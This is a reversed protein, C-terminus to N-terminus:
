YLHYSINEIGLWPGKPDNQIREDEWPIFHREIMDDWAEKGVPTNHTTLGGPYKETEKEEPLELYHVLLNDYLFLMGYKDYMGPNEEQFQYHYFIYSATKEPKLYNIRIWPTKNAQKRKWHEESLPRSYHFVDIMRFWLRGDPFPIANATVVDEPRVDPTVTELYLFVQKGHRSLSLTRLDPHSKEWVEDSALFATYMFRYIM